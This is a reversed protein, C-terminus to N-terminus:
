ELTVHYGNQELQSVLHRGQAESGVECAIHLIAENLNLNAHLRDHQVMIINAGAEAVVHAFRELSGPIDLMVTQFKMQRGRKVLGKEIIRHIFSMDINGGSLVCVVKQGAIDLRGSTAAALAAAGAPEVVQKSRELLLLIAASIEDDTVSVMDDVYRSIINFTLSGPSKVAIGDAITQVRDLQVIGHEHFSRVIANAGEAQVGIVRVRPNITKLYFSVGALLGGGGAPVLVTDVAHLDRLIELAVTGQGAIIDPDDFPHIFTDGTEEELHRAFAYSDDYNDGHLIVKAGYGETAQIKAIPTSKPMVITSKVGLANAAYAVGQAHNGASAALVSRLAGEELFRAIKNYAGRIKFSGTKQQNEYKLYLHSGSLHSFTLSREVPIRHVVGELREAAREIDRLHLDM